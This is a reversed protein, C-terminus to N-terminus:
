SDGFLLLYMFRKSKCRKKNTFSHQRTVVYFACKQKHSGSCHGRTCRARACTPGDNADRISTQAAGQGAMHAVFWNDTDMRVEPAPKCNDEVVFAQVICNCAVMSWGFRRVAPGERENVMDM